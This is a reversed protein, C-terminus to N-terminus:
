WSQFRLTFTYDAAVAKCDHLGPSYQAARAMTIAVLDLAPNGSSDVVLTKQVAGQADLTVRVRTTGNTAAGRASPAIEPVTPSATIAPAIDGKTCAPAVPSPAATAPAASPAETARGSGGTGSGPSKGAAIPKQASTAVPKPAPTRPPPSPVRREHILRAVHVIAVVEPQDQPRMLEPWHVGSAVVVHVLLSIAFALFLLRRTRKADMFTSSDECMAVLAGM